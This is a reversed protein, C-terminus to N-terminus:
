FTLKVPGPKSEEVPPAVSAAPVLLKHFEDCKSADPSIRMEGDPYACIVFPRAAPKAAPRSGFYAFTFPVGFLLLRAVTRKLM